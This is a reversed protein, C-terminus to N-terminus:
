IMYPFCTTEVTTDPMRKARKRVTSHIQLPQLKRRHRLLQEFFTKREQKIKIHESCVRSYSFSAFLIGSVVTSVVLCRHVM